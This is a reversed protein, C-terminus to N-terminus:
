FPREPVRPGKLIAAYVRSCTPPARSFVPAPPRPWFVGRLYAPAWLFPRTPAHSFPPFILAKGGAWVPDSSSVFVFGLVVGFGTIALVDDVSAAAIVLTPIGKETGLNKEQLAIMGPVTVAPSVASIVFGLLFSWEFPINLIYKGILGYVVTEVLCPIFALRLCLGSLKKLALPDLGLGARLLIIALAMSRLSSSTKTDLELKLVNTILFGSLLMGLLPPLKVLEFAEGLVNALIYLVFLTFIKGKRPLAEDGFISWTTGFIFVILLLQLAGNRVYEKAVMM